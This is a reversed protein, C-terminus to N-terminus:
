AGLLVDDIIKSDNQQVFLDVGYSQAPTFSEHTETSESRDRSAVKGINKSEERLAGEVGLAFQSVLELNGEFSIKSSFKEIYEKSLFSAGKEFIRKAARPSRVLPHNSVLLGVKECKGEKHLSCSDCKPNSKLSILLQSGAHQIKSFSEKMNDCSKYINSDIFVYGLQGYHRQLKEENDKLYENTSEVGFQRKLSDKVFAIDKGNTMADFACNTMARVDIKVQKAKPQIEVGQLTASTFDTDFNQRKYFGEIREVDNAFKSNFSEWTKYGFTSALKQNIQNRSMGSYLSNKFESLMSAFISQKVFTNNKTKNNDIDRINSTKQDVDRKLDSQQNRAKDTARKLHELSFLFSAVVFLPRKFSLLAKYQKVLEPTIYELRSFKELIDNATSRKIRFDIKSQEVINAKKEILNEFGLFSYKNLILRIKSELFKNVAENTYKSLLESQIKDFDYDKSILSNATIEINRIQTENAIVLNKETTYRNERNTDRPGDSTLENARSLSSGKDYSINPVDIVPPEYDVETEALKDIYDPMTKRESDGIIGSFGQDFIGQLREM